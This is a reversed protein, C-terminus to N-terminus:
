AHRYNLCAKVASSTSAPGSTESPRPIRRLVSRAIGGEGGARTNMLTQPHYPEEPRDSVPGAVLLREHVEEAWLPMRKADSDQSRHAAIPTFWGRAPCLHPALIKKGIQCRVGVTLPIGLCVTHGRSKVPTGAPWKPLSKPIGLVYTPRRPHLGSVIQVGKRHLHFRASGEPLVRPLTDRFSERGFVGGTYTLPARPSFLQACPVFHVRSNKAIKRRVGRSQRSRTERARRSGAVGGQVARNHGCPTWNLREREEHHRPSSDAPAGVGIWLVCM